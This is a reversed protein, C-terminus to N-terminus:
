VETLRIVNNVGNEVTREIDYAVADSLKAIVVKTVTPNLTAAAMAAELETDFGYNFPKGEVSYAYMITGWSETM